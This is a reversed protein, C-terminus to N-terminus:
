DLHLSGIFRMFDPQAKGVPEADGSLKLFWTNGDPTSILGAVMRSKAQGESTFDFVAVTGAKSQVPKRASALAKEDIPSLGIQGRWRNVNSLEGGGAGALMVVSVEVKGAIPPKLTAFRMGGAEGETWGKPLTWKLAGGGAPKPPAPMEGGAMDGMGSPEGSPPLTSAPAAAEKPVTYHSVEERQCGSASALFALVPIVLLCRLRHQTM